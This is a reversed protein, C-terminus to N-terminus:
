DELEKEFDDKEEKSVYVPSMDPQPSQLGGCFQTTSNCLQGM